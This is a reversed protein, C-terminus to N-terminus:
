KRSFVSLIYQKIHDSEHITKAVGRYGRATEVEASIGEGQVKTNHLCNKIEHVLRM